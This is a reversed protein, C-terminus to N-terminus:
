DKLNLFDVIKSEFDLRADDEFALGKVQNDILTHLLNCNDKYVQLREAYNKRIWEKSKSNNAENYFQCTGKLYLGVYECASRRLDKYPHKPKFVGVSTLAKTLSSSVTQELYGVMPLHNINLPAMKPPLKAPLKLDVFNWPTSLFIQRKEETAIAFLKGDYHVACDLDGPIISSFGEPGIQFTVPCYGKLDLSQPFLNKVDQRTIPLPL